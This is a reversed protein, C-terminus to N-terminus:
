VRGIVSIQRGYRTREGSLCSRRYSFFRSPQSLTDEALATVTGCGEQQLRALLYGPLDFQCHGMHSPTFFRVNRPDAALFQATFGEDVEYSAQAICPGIVASIDHRQAGLSEMAALTHETVGGLAGKWGAHAAAVIGTRQCAFLVPACDATLIGLLLHPLRTVLADCEVRPADPAPPETYIHVRASHIQYPSLLLAQPNLVACVRDRNETIHATDDGSGLGCNLSDYPPLSVGGERGFFGHAFPALAAHTLPTM